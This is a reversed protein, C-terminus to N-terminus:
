ISPTTLSGTPLTFVVSVYCCTEGRSHQQSQQQAILAMYTRYRAVIQRVYNIPEQGRVFGCKARRAYEPRSLLRMADEVNGFWLNQNDSDHSQVM